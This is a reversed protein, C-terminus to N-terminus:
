YFRNIVDRLGTTLKSEPDEVLRKVESLSFWRVEAVEAVELDTPTFDITLRYLKNFRKLYKNKYKEESYFYGVEELDYGDLGIEELMERKAADIYDEGVDVHGAASNDWYEPWNKVTKSRKQLLLNGKGDDIMVRSIRHTLGALHAPTAESSGIVKDEKDVIQILPKAM